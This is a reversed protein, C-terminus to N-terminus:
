SGAPGFRAAVGLVLDNAETEGVTIRCGEGAFPRVTVGVEECAAAVEATREGLRLWLFNSESAPVAWGQGLLAERVREREKVLAEVRALLEDEAALSAVAAAQAVLNM